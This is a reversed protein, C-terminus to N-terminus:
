ESQGAFEGGVANLVENFHVDMDDFCENVQKEFVNFRKELTDMRKELKDFRKDIRKEFEDFRKNLRQEQQQLLTSMLETIDVLDDKTLSM